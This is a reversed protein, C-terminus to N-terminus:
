KWHILLYFACAFFANERIAAGFVMDIMVNIRIEQKNEESLRKKRNINEDSIEYLYENYFSIYAPKNQIDKIIENFKNRIGDQLLGM